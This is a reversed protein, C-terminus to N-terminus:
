SVMLRHEQKYNTLESFSLLMLTGYGNRLKTKTDNSFAHINVVKIWSRIISCM